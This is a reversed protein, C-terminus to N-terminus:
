GFCRKRWLLYESEYLKRAKIQWISFYVNIIRVFLINTDNETYLNEFM